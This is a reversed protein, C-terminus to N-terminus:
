RPGLVMDVVRGVEAPRGAEVALDEITRQERGEFAALESAVAVVAKLYTKPCTVYHANLKAKVNCAFASGLRGKTVLLIAKTVGVGSAKGEVYLGDEFVQWMACIARTVTQAPTQFCRLNASGM